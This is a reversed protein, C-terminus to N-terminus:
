CEIADRYVALTQAACHDWSFATARERSRSRMRAMLDPDCVVRAINNALGEVDRADVLIGADGAVEPMSSNNAAIVPCGCSMAELLPLGFGEYFSPLVFVDAASYFSALDAHDPLYGTWQVKDALDPRSLAQRIPESRWGMAGALVLKHPLDSSLRAFADFLALLNKRPELTGVFLIFPGSIGHQRALRALAEEKPIPQFVKSAGQYTVSVKAPDVQLREVVDRKTAESVAIVRDARAAHARISRSFIRVIRPSCLHPVALFALDHVTLVGRARSLPPLVYNTAHFVDIGDLLRDAAPFHFTNWVTYMARAPMRIHRFPIPGPVDSAAFRGLRVALGHLELGLGTQNLHNLLYYCYNGVGTRPSALSGIDVGVRM